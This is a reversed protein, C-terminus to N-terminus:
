TPWKWGVQGVGDEEDEQRQREKLDGEEWLAKMGAGVERQPAGAKAIIHYSVLKWPTGKKRPLSSQSTTAVLGHM